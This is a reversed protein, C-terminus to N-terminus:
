CVSYYVKDIIIIVFRFITLKTYEKRCVFPEKGSFFTPSASSFTSIPNNSIIGIAITAATTRTVFTTRIVGSMVTALTAITSGSKILVNVVNRQIKVAGAHLILKGRQDKGFLLSYFTWQLM